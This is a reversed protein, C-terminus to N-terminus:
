LPHGAQYATCSKLNGANNTSVKALTILEQKPLYFYSRNILINESLQSASGPRQSQEIMKCMQIHQFLEVYFANLSDVTYPM